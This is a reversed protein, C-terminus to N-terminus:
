RDAVDGFMEEGLFALCIFVYSVFFGDLKTGSLYQSILGNLDTNM